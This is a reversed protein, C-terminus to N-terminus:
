STPRVHGVCAGLGLHRSPWNRRSALGAGSLVICRVTEDTALADIQARLAISLEPSIANLKEPRNLMLTTVGDSDTRVVLAAADIM